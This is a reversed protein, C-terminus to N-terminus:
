SIVVNIMKKPVVIVKRIQNGSTLQSIREDALALTELEDPSADTSVVIRSRVKGNVQVPLEISDEVLLGVDASPFLQHVVSDAHGLRAWLEEAIHPVLPALMLVLKEALELPVPNSSKTLENNLETIRAIASNFRLGEMADAVSAITHHLLRQSGEDIPVDVVTAEGTEENILNRWVRQLLRHSGIVSKTEWPRDQDLPGMFMEYLRLTDAGYASYMDDPTVSNKLSKGM